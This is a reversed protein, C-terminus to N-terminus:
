KEGGGDIFKTGDLLLSLKKLSLQSTKVWPPFFTTIEKQLTLSLLSILPFICPMTSILPLCSTKLKRFCQPLILYQNFVTVKKGCRITRKEQINNNRCKIESRSLIKKLFAM